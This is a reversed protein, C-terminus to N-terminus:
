CPVTNKLSAAGGPKQRLHAAKMAQMADQLNNKQEERVAGKNYLIFHLKKTLFKFLNFYVSGSCMM